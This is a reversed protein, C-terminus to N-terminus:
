PTGLSGAAPRNGSSGSSAFSMSDIFIDEFRPHKSLEFYEVRRALSEARHRISKSLLTMRSGQGAANGVGLIREPRIAAPLMSIGLASRKDVFNGFAGALFVRIIQSADIGLEEMLIRVGCLITGKALQLQRVDDQTIAIYPDWSLVFEWTYDQGVLREQVKPPLRGELDPRPLLRGGADVIGRRVMQALADILGSGCIGKPPVDGITWVRVDELIRVRDIAGASARMGNRIEAGEFAPGAPASCALIHGRSGLAMEGNTGIDVALQIEDSEDLGTAMIVALTDAGVYAGILPLFYSRANPLGIGLDAAWLSLGDRIVPVYPSLAITTPTIGLALHHMISNGVVTMYYVQRPDVSACCDTIIQNLTEVIAAQLDAVGHAKELAHSARSLVDAGWPQQGNLRSSRAIEKGSWLDILYGVVSTTGIDFAMGFAHGRTDGVEAALLEETGDEHEWLTATIRFSGQRLASPLARLAELGVRVPKGLAKQIREVDSLDDHLAASPLELYAKRLPPEPKVAVEVYDGKELIEEEVVIEVEGLPRAQCGLRTGRALEPETLMELELPTPETVPGQPQCRCKTCKGRGGCLSPLKLGVLRALELFTADAETSYRIGRSIFTARRVAM